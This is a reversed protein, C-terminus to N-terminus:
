KIHSVERSSKGIKIDFEILAYEGPDVLIAYPRSTHESLLKSPTNLVIDEGNKSDIPSFTLNQLQANNVGACGWQRGWNVGYVVVAKETKSEEYNRKTLKDYGFVNNTSLAFIIILLGKLIKM